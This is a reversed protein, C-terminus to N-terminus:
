PFNSATSLRLDSPSNGRKNIVLFKGAVYKLENQFSVQLDYQYINQRKQLGSYNTKKDGWKRQKKGSKKHHPPSHLDNALPLSVGRPKELNAISLHCLM